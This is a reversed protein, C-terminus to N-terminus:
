LSAHLPFCLHIFLLLSEPLHLLFLFLSSLVFPIFSPHFIFSLPITYPPCHQCPYPDHHYYISIVPRHTTHTARTSPIPSLSFFISLCRSFLQYWWGSSGAQMGVMQGVENRRGSQNETHRTDQSTVLNRPRWQDVHVVGRGGRMTIPSTM